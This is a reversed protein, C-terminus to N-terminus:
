DHTHIYSLLLDVIFLIMSNHLIIYWLEQFICCAHTTPPDSSSTCITLSLEWSPTRSFARPDDSPLSTWQTVPLSDFSGAPSCLSFSLSSTPSLHLDYFYGSAIDPVAKYVSNKGLKWHKVQFHHEPIFAASWLNKNFHVNQNLLDGYKFIQIASVGKDM